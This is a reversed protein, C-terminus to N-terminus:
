NGHGLETDVFFEESWGFCAKFESKPFLLDTGYWAPLGQANTSHSIKVLGSPDTQFVFHKSSTLKDDGGYTKIWCNKKQRLNWRNQRLIIRFSILSSKTLSKRQNWWPWFIVCWSISSARVCVWFSREENQKQSSYWRRNCKSWFLTMQETYFYLRWQM